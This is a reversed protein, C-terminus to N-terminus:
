FCNDIYSRMKARHEDKFIPTFLRENRLKDAHRQVQPDIRLAQLDKAITPDEEVELAPLTFMSILFVWLAVEFM